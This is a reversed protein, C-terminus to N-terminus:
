STPALCIFYHVCIRVVGATFNGGVATLVVDGAASRWELPSATSDVPSLTQGSTLTSFIGYRDPDTGDGVQVSTPGTVTTTIRASVGLIVAGDPLAGTFTYSAGSTLSSSATPVVFIQTYPANSTSVSFSNNGLGINGSVGSGSLAISGSTQVTSCNIGVYGSDDGERVALAGSELDLRAGSTDATGVILATSATLTTFSAATGSQVSLARILAVVKGTTMPARRDM